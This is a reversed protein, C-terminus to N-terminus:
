VMITALASLIGMDDPSHPIVRSIKALNKEPFRCFNEQTRSQRWTLHALPSVRGALSSRASCAGTLSLAGRPPARLIITGEKLGPPGQLGAAARCLLVPRLDNLGRLEAPSLM